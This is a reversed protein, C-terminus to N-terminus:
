RPPAHPATSHRLALTPSRRRSVRVGSPRTVPRPQPFVSLEHAFTKGLEELLADRADLLTVDDAARHQRDVLVVDLDVHAELGLAEHGGPFEHVFLPRNEDLRPVGHVDQHLLGLVVATADHERLLLGIAQQDPVLDAPGVLGVLGDVSDHDRPDLAAEGHVDAHLGEQGARLDIQPRNAVELLHHALLELELDDLEVLPAAVDHERPARQELGLPLPQPEFGELREGGPLDDVAHDLVEGVVAGEDVQAADVAQQVDGVHGPAADVVRALEEVDAVLDLDLHELEIRVALPDRQPELLDLRIRPDVGRHAVGDAPADAPADDREGLVAGEDLELRADLPQDVDGLHRPRLADLVGRLHEGHAVLDLRHHEVDVLLLALDRQPHLLDLGVGPAHDLLGIGNARLDLAQDAVDGVEPDEDAELLADVAQHM